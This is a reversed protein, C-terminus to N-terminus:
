LVTLQHILVYHEVFVDESIRVYMYFYTHTPIGLTVKTSLVMVVNNYNQAHMWVHLSHNKKTQFWMAKIFM